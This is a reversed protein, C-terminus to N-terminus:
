GQLRPGVDAALRELHELEDFVPNLVLFRAGADVVATLGAVCEDLDGWVCVQEALEPRGYFAGFWEGLRKGARARDRDLALYVRKGIRFTAADRGEEKLITRLQRVEDVFQATSASGAGVFGDGLQVARRLAAPHRAGFWIPPHPRQRPKPEMTADKLKWFEGDFTVRPETWLRRMVTISEKFRAVRREPSIGFAPYQGFDGGLGVGAIVRGGSLQDLTSLSKALHVPSRLPTLLVAAGLRVRETLAAAYTLLEVPDLSPMRGLIQEVVWVGHYGLGDVRGLFTRIKPVPIPERVFAQPLAIALDVNTAV